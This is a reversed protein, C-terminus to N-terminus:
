GCSYFGLSIVPAENERRTREGGKGQERWFGAHAAPSSFPMRDQLM